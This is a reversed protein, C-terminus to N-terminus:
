EEIEVTMMHGHDDLPTLYKLAKGNKLIYCIVEHSMYVHDGLFSSVAERLEDYYSWARFEESVAFAKENELERVRDELRELNEKLQNRNM